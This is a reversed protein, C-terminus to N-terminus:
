EDVNGGMRKVIILMNLHSRVLMKGDMILHIISIVGIPQHYPKALRGLERKINKLTINNTVEPKGM